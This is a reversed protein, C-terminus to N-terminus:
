RAEVLHDVPEAVLAEVMLRPAAGRAFVTACQQLSDSVIRVSLKPLVQERLQQLLECDSQSFGMGPLSITKWAAPFLPLETAAPLRQGHVRAVLVDHSDYDTLRRLNEDTAEIPTLLVFEADVVHSLDGCYFRRFQARERAGVQLLIRQIKEQLSRCMYFTNGARYAFKVVHPRWVAAIPAEAASAGAKAAGTMTAATLLVALVVVTRVVRESTM